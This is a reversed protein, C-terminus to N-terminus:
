GLAFAGGYHAMTLIFVALCAVILRTAPAIAPAISLREATFRRLRSVSDSLLEM